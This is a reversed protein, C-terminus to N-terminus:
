ICQESRREACLRTRCRPVAPRSLREERRDHYGRSSQTIRHRFYPRDRRLLPLTARHFILCILLTECRVWVASPGISKLKEFHHEKLFAPHAFAGATCTDGALEDCVYQAGFCYRTSDSFLDQSLVPLITIVWCLRIKHEIKWITGQSSEGM